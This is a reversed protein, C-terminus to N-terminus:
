LAPHNGREIAGSMGILFGASHYLPLNIYFVDDSTVGCVGQIFSAAWVREHTVVAAKPLGAMLFPLFLLLDAKRRPEGQHGSTSNCYCQKARGQVPFSALLTHETGTTGSTYIYLATSRIHTNARLDRSLPEDSAQSIDGALANIGQVPCADSLLFVSIGQEQLTPMVEALADQLEAFM